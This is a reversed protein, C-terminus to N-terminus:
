PVENHINKNLNEMFIVLSHPDVTHQLRVGDPFQILNWEFNPHTTGETDVLDIM